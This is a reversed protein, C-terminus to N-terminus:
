AFKRRFDPFQDLEVVVSFSKTQSHFWSLLNFSLHISQLWEQDSPMRFGFRPM